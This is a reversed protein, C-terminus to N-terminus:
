SLFPLPKVVMFIVYRFNGPLVFGNYRDMAMSASSGYSINIFFIFHTDIFRTATKKMRIIIMLMEQPQMM